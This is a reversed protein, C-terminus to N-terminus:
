VIGFVRLTAYAFSVKETRKTHLIILLIFLCAIVLLSNCGTYIFDKM